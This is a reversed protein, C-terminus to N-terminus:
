AGSAPSEGSGASAASAGSGVGHTADFLMRGQLVDTAIHIAMPVWLSGSLWYLAGLVLGVVATKGANAVGQYLHATSFALATALLAVWTPAWTGVYWMLYGRYILEEVTGATAGVAFFRRLEAPTSPLIWALPAAAVRVQEAMAPRRRVALVQAVLAAVIVLAIAAAIMFGRGAPAAIGLAEPSRRLAFWGVILVAAAIWQGTIIRRYARLRTGAVGAELARLLRRREAAAQLPVLAVLAIVVLHDVLAPTTM